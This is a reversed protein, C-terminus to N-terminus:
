DAHDQVSDAPPVLTLHRDIYLRRGEAARLRRLIDAASETPYEREYQETMFEDM